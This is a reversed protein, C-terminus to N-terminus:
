ALQKEESQSEQKEKIGKRFSVVTLVLLIGVVVFVWDPIPVPDGKAYSHFDALVMIDIWKYRTLEKLVHVFAIVLWIFGVTIFGNFLRSLISYKNDLREVEIRNANPYTDKGAIQPFQHVYGILALSQKVSEDTNRQLYHALLTLVKSAFRVDDETVADAVYYPTCWTHILDDKHLFLHM